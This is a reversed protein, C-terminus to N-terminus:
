APTEGTNVREPRPQTAKFVVRVTGDATTKRVFRGLGPVDTKDTMAELEKRIGDLYTRLVRGVVNAPVGTDASIQAVKEKMTM